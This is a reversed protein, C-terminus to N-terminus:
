IRQPILLPKLLSKKKSGSYRPIPTHKIIKPLIATIKYFLTALLIDKTLLAFTNERGPYGAIPFDHIKHLM